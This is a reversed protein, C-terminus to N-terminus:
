VRVQFNLEPPFLEEPKLHRATVGQEFCYLLFAELTARNADIGYPWPDGDGFLLKSTREFQASGWATPIFATTIDYLRPLVAKKSAEFAEVLNRMIWRNREYADRRVVMVHMIPFIGTREFYRQEEQQYDPFLRQIGPEGKLFPDPPRATIMADIEGALLMQTLTRDPMPTVRVGSPLQLTAPEKRGPENVGAQVWDISALSIGVDHALYGRVYVTATQSWQPIGIRRGALQAAERIESGQRIFIASHRFVRSPFVPIAVIPSPEPRAVLSCYNALSFESVEWERLAGFRLGVQEFPYNLVTLDIGEARVRGSALERTHVYDGIALTLPINM